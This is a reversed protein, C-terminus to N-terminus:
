LGLRHGFKRRLYDEPPDEIGIVHEAKFLFEVGEDLYGADISVPQNDLIGRYYEGIRGVVVAWMREVGVDTVGNEHVAEIQFLLRVSQGPRINDRDERSPLWFEEGYRAQREEGSELAWGDAELSTLRRTWESSSM